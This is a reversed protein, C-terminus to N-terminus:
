PACQLGAIGRLRLTNVFGQGGDDRDLGAEISEEGDFFMQQHSLTNKLVRNNAARNPEPQILFSLALYVPQEFPQHFCDGSCARGRIEAARGFAAYRAPPVSGAPLLVNRKARTAAPTIRHAPSNM